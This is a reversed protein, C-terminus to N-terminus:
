IVRYKNGLNIIKYYIWLKYYFFKRSLFSQQYYKYKSLIKIRETEIRGSATISNEHIRFKSVNIDMYSGSSKDDKLARLIYDYDAAYRYTADYGGLKKNLAASIFFCPHPAFTGHTSLLLQRFNVNFLKVQKLKGDKLKILNGFYYDLKDKRVHIAVKELTDPAYLMDDSNLILIYDGTIHWLGKNIADYMGSDDESKWYAIYDEFKHIIELTNDTSGGDIIVYEINPYTQAIVSRITEELFRGSNKCVTIISIKPFAPVSM